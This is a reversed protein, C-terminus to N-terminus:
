CQVKETRSDRDARLAIRSAHDRRMFCSPFNPDCRPACTARRRLGAVHRRAAEGATAMEWARRFRQTFAAVRCHQRISNAADREFCLIPADAVRCNKPSEGTGMKWNGIEFKAKEGESFPTLGFWTNQAALREFCVNSAVFPLLISSETFPVSALNARFPSAHTNRNNSNGLDPWKSM